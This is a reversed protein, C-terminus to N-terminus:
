LAAMAAVRATVQPQTLTVNYNAVSEINAVIYATAAGGGNLAGIYVSVNAAAGAPIAGDPVGDRYPTSSVSGLNGALLAPIVLLFGGNTYLARNTIRQGTGLSFGAGSAGTLYRNSPIGTLVLGSFQVLISWTTALATIGTDLCRSLTNFGSWGVGSAWNVSGGGIEALDHTGPNALNVLSAAYSAASKAQYAGVSSGGVGGPTAGDPNWWPLPLAAASPMYFRIGSVEPAPIVTIRQQRIM